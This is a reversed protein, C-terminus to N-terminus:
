KKNKGELSFQNARESHKRSGILLAARERGFNRIPSTVINKLKLRLSYDRDKLVFAWDKVSGLVFAKIHPLVKGSPVVGLVDYMAKYEDYKRNFYEFASYENSHWVNGLPTYVKLYNNELVDNGFLQDEAYNVDKYSVKDILFERRTASNVDSYFTLIGIGLDAKNYISYKRHLMLSHDPGLSSFVSSVERKTTADCFPRPTQKGFVAVVKENLFFPELMAGLWKKSAPVADQSLFVIFEGKASLAAANRTKGHGFEANSIKTLRVEPFKDIIELTSDTSGSDTILVEFNFDVEQEFVSHLLAQLYDEGNFTPIFVSAKINSKKSASAM